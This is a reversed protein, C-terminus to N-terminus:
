PLGEIQFTFGWVDLLVSDVDTPRVFQLEFLQQGGAPLSWPLARPPVAAKRIATQSVL